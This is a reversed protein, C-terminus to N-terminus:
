AEFLLQSTTAAHSGPMSFLRVNMPLRAYRGHSGGRFAGCILWPPSSTSRRKRMPRRPVTGARVTPDECHPLVGAPRRSGVSRSCLRAPPRRAFRGRPRQSRHLRSAAADGRRTCRQSRSRRGRHTTGPVGVARAAHRAPPATGPRREAVDQQSDHLFGVVPQASRRPSSTWPTSSGSARSSAM